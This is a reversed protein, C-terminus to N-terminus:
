RDNNDKFLDAPDLSPEFETVLPLITQKVNIDSELIHIRSGSLAAIRAAAIQEASFFPPPPCNSVFCYSMVNCHILNNCDTPGSDPTDSYKDDWTHRLNWAHGLEHAITRGSNHRVVASIITGYQFGLPANAFTSIGAYLKDGWKISDVFYVPYVNREKAIKRSASLVSLYELWGTQDYFKDSVVIEPKMIKFQIGVKSWYENTRKFGSILQSSLWRTNGDSNKVIIPLIRAVGTWDKAPGRSPCCGSLVLTVLGILLLILKNM